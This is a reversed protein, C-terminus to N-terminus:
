EKGGFDKLSSALAMTDFPPGLPAPGADVVSQGRPVLREQMPSFRPKPPSLLQLEPDSGVAVPQRENNYLVGAIFTGLPGSGNARFLHQEFLHGVPEWEEDFLWRGERTGVITGNKGRLYDM